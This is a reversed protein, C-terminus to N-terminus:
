PSSLSVLVLPSDSVQIYKQDREAKSREFLNTQIADLTDKVVGVINDMPYDAKDGTDRRVLRVMRKELDRPGVELRVPVGQYFLVSLGTVSVTM